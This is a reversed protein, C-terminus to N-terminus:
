KSTINGDKTRSKLITTLMYLGRETFAKFNYKSYRGKGKSLELTSLKSRLIASEESSLEFMYGESFKRSNNRVAENIRKTTVLDAM